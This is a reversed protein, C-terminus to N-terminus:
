CQEANWLNSNPDGQNENNRTESSQEEVWIYNLRQTNPPKKKGILKRKSIQLKIETDNSHLHKMFGDNIRDISNFTGYSSLFHKNSNNFSTTQLYENFGMAHSPTSNRQAHKEICSSHGNRIPRSSESSM